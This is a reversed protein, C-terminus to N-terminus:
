PKSNIDKREKRFLTGKKRKFETRSSGFQAKLEAVQKEYNAADEQDKLLKRENADAIRKRDEEDTKKQKESEEKHKIKGLTDEDINRGIEIVETHIPKVDPKNKRNILSLGEDVLNTQTGIFNSISTVGAHKIFFNYIVEDDINSRRGVISLKTNEGGKITKNKYKRKKITKM